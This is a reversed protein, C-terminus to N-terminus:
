CRPQEIVARTLLDVVAPHEGASGALQELRPAGTGALLGRIEPLM